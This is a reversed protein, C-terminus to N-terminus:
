PKAAMREKAKDFEGANKLWLMKINCFGNRRHQSFSM